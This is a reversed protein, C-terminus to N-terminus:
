GLLLRQDELFAHRWSVLWRELCIKDDFFQLILFILEFLIMEQCTRRRRSYERWVLVIVWKLERRLLKRAIEGAAVALRRLYGFYIVRQIQMDEAFCARNREVFWRFSSCYRGPNMIFLIFRFIDEPTAATRALCSTRASSSKRSRIVRGRKLKM